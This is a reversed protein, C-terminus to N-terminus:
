HSRSEDDTPLIFCEAYSTCEECSPARCLYDGGRECLQRYLFRKWRMDRINSAVLDPFASSLLRRLQGRNSLGLDSWLHASGLCACAVIRALFGCMPDDSKRHEMLLAELQNIEDERGAALVSRLRARERGLARAHTWGLDNGFRRELLPLVDEVDFALRMLASYSTGLGVDEPLASKGVLFSAILRSVPAGWLHRAARCELIASSLAVWDREGSSKALVKPDADHQRVEGDDLEMQVSVSM